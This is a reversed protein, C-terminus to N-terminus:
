FVPCRGNIKRKAISQTKLSVKCRKTRLNYKSKPCAVTIRTNKDPKITRFSRKDFKKPSVIRKRCFNKTIDIRKKSM